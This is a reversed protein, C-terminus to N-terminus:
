ATSEIRGLHRIPKLSGDLLFGALMNRRAPIQAPNYDHGQAM